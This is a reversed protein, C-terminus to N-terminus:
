KEADSGLAGREPIADWRTGNKGTKARALLQYPSWLIPPSEDYAGRWTHFQPHDAYGALKPYEYQAKEHHQTIYFRIVCDPSKLYTQDHCVRHNAQAYGRHLTNM